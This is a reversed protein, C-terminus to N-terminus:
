SASASESTTLIIIRNLSLSNIAEGDELTDVFTDQLSDAGFREEIYTALKTNWQEKSFIEGTFQGTIMSALEICNRVSGGGNYRLDVILDDIGQSKFDGFVSNLNSSKEAVFQNYMLYGVKGVETNLIKNLQIPNTEFNEEQTLEISTGNSVIGDTQLEAMNLTYTLDDGFLLERYNNVNLTTGNVGTFFDGRKINKTSADSDELIYKVYGAILDCDNCAYTLGFEVGNSAYVGQLLNELEEYDDQIWSFRDDPHLLSEFFAEPESNNSIFQAFAKEDSLKSDALNPVEEQWYYYTNLGEWVFDSVQLAGELSIATDDTDQRTAEVAQEEDLVEEKKCGTVLLFLAALFLYTKTSGTPLFHLIM